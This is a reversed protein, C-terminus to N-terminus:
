LGALLVNKHSLDFTGDAAADGELIMMVIVVTACTKLLPRM